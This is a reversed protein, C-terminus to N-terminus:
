RIAPQAVSNALATLLQHEALVCPFHVGTAKDTEKFTRGTSCLLGADSKATFIPKELERVSGLRCSAPESASKRIPTDRKGFSRSGWDRSRLGVRRITKTQNSDFPESARKSPRNLALKPRDTNAATTVVNM